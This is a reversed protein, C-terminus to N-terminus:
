EGTLYHWDQFSILKKKYPNTNRVVVQNYKLIQKKDEYDRYDNDIIIDINLDYKDKLLEKLLEGIELSFSINKISKLIGLKPHYVRSPNIPNDVIGFNYLLSTIKSDKSFQISKSEKIDEMFNPLIMELLHSHLDRQGQTPFDFSYYKIVMERM